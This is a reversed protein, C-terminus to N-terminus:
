CDVGESDEVAWRSWWEVAENGEWRGESWRLTMVQSM